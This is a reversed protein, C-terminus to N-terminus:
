PCIFMVQTHTDGGSLPGAMEKGVDGAFSTQVQGPWPPRPADCLAHSGAPELRCMCVCDSFVVPFALPCKQTESVCMNM